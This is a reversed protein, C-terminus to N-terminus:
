LYAIEKRFTRWGTIKNRSAEGGKIEDAIINNIDVAELLWSFLFHRVQPAGDCKYKYTPFLM